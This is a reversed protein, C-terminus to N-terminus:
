HDTSGFLWEDVGTGGNVRLLASRTVGVKASDIDRPHDEAVSVVQEHLAIRAMGAHRVAATGDLANGHLDAGRAVSQFVGILANEGAAVALCAVRWGKVKPGAAVYLVPGLLRVCLIRLRGTDVAAHHTMLGCLVAIFAVGVLSRVDAGHRREVM